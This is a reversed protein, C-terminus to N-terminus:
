LFKGLIGGIDDVVKGDGDKDLFSKAADFISGSSKSEIEKKEKGILDNIDVKENQKSKKSALYALAIPAIVMLMKKAKDKSVGANDAITEEVKNRNESFIHDMMRDSDESDRNFFSSINMFDNEHDKLASDLSKKGEETETNRNLAELIVPIGMKALSGAENETVGAGEALKGSQGLLMNLLDM